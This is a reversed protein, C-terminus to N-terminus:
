LKSKKRPKEEDVFFDMILPANPNITYKELDKETMGADLLVEDDIFFNGTCTKSDKTLIEYAADSMIEPTRCSEMAGKGM